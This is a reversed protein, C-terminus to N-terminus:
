VTGKAPKMENYKLPMADQVATSYANRKIGNTSSKTFFDSFFKEFWSFSLLCDFKNKSIRRYKFRGKINVITTQKRKQLIM